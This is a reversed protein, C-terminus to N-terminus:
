AVGAERILEVYHARRLSPLALIHEELWHYHSALLHVDRYVGAAFRRLEQLVFSRVNFYFRLAAGCEPCTGEVMQSMLPAMSEMAREIRRRVMSPANAPQLCRELLGRDARESQELEVIDSASPLRFTVEGESTAGSAPIIKQGGLRFWGPKGADELLRPLRIRRSEICATIGFSVDVRAGCGPESCRSEAQILDGLLNSRICLLLAELDAITLDTWNMSRGEPARVLRSILALSVVTDSARYELLLLDEYGTPQELLVPVGSVPLRFM